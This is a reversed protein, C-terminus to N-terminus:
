RCLRSCGRSTVVIGSNSSKKSTKKSHNMKKCVMARGTAQIEAKPPVEVIRYILGRRQRWSSGSTREIDVKVSYLATKRAYEGLYRDFDCRRNWCMSKCAKTNGSFGILLSATEWGYGSVYAAEMIVEATLGEDCTDIEPLPVAVM